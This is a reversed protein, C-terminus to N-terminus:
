FSWAPNVNEKDNLTQMFHQGVRSLLNLIIPIKENDQIDYSNTM